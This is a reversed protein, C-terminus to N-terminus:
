GMDLETKKIFLFFVIGVAITAAVGVYFEPLTNQLSDVISFREFCPIDINIPGWDIGAIYGMPITLFYYLEFFLWLGLGTFGCIRRARSSRFDYWVAFLFLVVGALALPNELVTTGKIDTIGRYGFWSFLMTFLAASAAFFVGIQWARYVSIRRGFAVARATDADDALTPPTKAPRADYYARCGECGSLHEEVAAAGNESLAGDKYLAAVDRVLDCEYKM